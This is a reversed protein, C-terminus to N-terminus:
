VLSELLRVLDARGPPGGPTGQVLFDDLVADALGAADVHDIGIEHLRRPLGLRRVLGDVVAAPDDTGLAAALEEIKEPAFPAVFRIVDPLAICSATGHAVGLSGGLQHGIAHSLGLTGNAVGLYSLWAAVQGRARVSEDGPADLAAPLCDRLLVIAARSTEDTLPSSLPSLITEVAHDLARMGTTVWIEEPTRTALAADVLVGDCALARGAFLEKRSTGPCTAAGGDSYEAASLTTPVAVHSLARASAAPFEPGAPGITVRLEHLEEAGVVGEGLCLAALRATDIASGGGVSVVADVGARSGAAAAALVTDYPTHPLVADFVVRLRGGAAATLRAPLATDRLASPTVVALCATAGIEDLADGLQDVCGGGSRISGTAPYRFESM